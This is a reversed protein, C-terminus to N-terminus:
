FQRDVIFHALERLDEAAVPNTAASDLAELAAEMSTRAEDTARQRGGLSDVLEAARVVQLETLETEALLEMLEEAGPGGAAIAATV